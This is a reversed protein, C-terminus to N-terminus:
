GSRNASFARVKLVQKGNEQSEPAFDFPEISVKLAQHVGINDGADAAFIQLIL